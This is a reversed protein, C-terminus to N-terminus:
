EEPMLMECAIRIASSVVKACQQEHGPTGLYDDRGEDSALDWSRGFLQEHIKPCLVTGWQALFRDRYEMFEAPGRKEHKPDALEEAITSNRLCGVALLGACYAGCSGNASGTGGALSLSATELEVPIEPFADRIGVMASRACIDDRLIAEIGAQEAKRIREERNM